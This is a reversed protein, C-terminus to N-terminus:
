KGAPEVDDITGAVVRREDQHVAERVVMVDVVV